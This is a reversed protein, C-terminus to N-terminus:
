RSFELIVISRDILWVVDYQSLQASLQVRSRVTGDPVILDLGYFDAVKLFLEEHKSADLNPVDWTGRLMKSHKCLGRYKCTCNEHTTTYVRQRFGRRYKECSDGAFTYATAVESLLNTMM